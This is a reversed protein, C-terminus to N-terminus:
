DEPAFIDLVYSYRGTRKLWGNAIWRKRRAIMLARLVEEKDESRPRRRPLRREQRQLRLIALRTKNERVHKDLDMIKTM